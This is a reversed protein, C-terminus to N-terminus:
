AAQCVESVKNPLSTKRRKKSFINKKNLIELWSHYCVGIIGTNLLHLCHFHLNLALRPSMAARMRLVLGFCLRTLRRWSDDLLTCAALTIAKPLLGHLCGQMETIYPYLQCMTLFLSWLYPIHWPQAWDKVVTWISLARLDTGQAPVDYASM